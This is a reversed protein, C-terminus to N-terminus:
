EGGSAWASQRDLPSRVGIGPKKMVHTYIMTTSVDKHGLLAQVTRIDTGSELLHTAFSHRFTHPTVPRAIDARRAAEAVARQLSKPHHHHRVRHGTYPSTCIAVSPFVFQWAWTYAARPYKRELAFPLAVRGFGAALDRDHLDRVRGLHVELPELLRDPLVTVRDRRGKADRIMLQRREFGVDKVRLGLCEMLRMGSGYLLAVMLRSTGRLQAM